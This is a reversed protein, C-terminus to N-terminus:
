ACCGLTPRALPRGQTVGGMLKTVSFANFLRRLMYGPNGMQTSGSQAQFRELCMQSGMKVDRGEGYRAGPTNGANEERQRLHSARRPRM